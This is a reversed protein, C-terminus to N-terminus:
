CLSFWSSSAASCKFSNNSFISVNALSSFKKLGSSVQTTILFISLEVIVCVDDQSAARSAVMGYIYSTLFTSVKYPLCMRLLNCRNAVVRQYCVVVVICGCQTVQWKSM